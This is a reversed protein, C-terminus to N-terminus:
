TVNATKDQQDDNSRKHRRQAFLLSLLPLARALLLETTDGQRFKTIAVPALAYLSSKLDGKGLYHLSTSIDLDEDARRLRAKAEDLELSARRRKGRSVNVFNRRAEERNM